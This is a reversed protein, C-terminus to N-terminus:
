VPEGEPANLVEDPIRIKFNEDLEQYTYSNNYSYNEGESKLTYQTNIQTIFYNNMGVYVEISGEIFQKKPDSYSGSKELDKLVPLIDGKLIYRNNSSDEEIKLGSYIVDRANIIQDYYYNNFENDFGIDPQIIKIWDGITGFSGKKWDYCVYCTGNLSYSEYNMTMVNSDLYSSYHAIQNKRNIDIRKTYETDSVSSKNSIAFKDLKNMTLIATDVILKVKKYEDCNQIYVRKLYKDWAVEYGLAQAVFRAPIYTRGNKGYVIPSTDLTVPSDNIYAKNKGVELYVKTSGMNITISKNVANWVIHENDNQVGLNTLINRLPLLTRGNMIIPVDAIPAPNGGIYVKIDPSEAIDNGAFCYFPLVCMFLVPLVFILIGKIVKKIFVGGIFYRIVTIIGGNLM